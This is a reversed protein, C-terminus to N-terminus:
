GFLWSGIKFLLWLGLLAIGIEIILYAGLCGGGAASTLADEKNKGTFLGILGGIVAFAIIVILWTPM